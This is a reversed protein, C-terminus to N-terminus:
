HTVAVRPAHRLHVQGLLEEVLVDWEVLQEPSLIGALGQRFDLQIGAMAERQARSAGATSDHAFRLRMEDLRVANGDVLLRLERQQGPQLGLREQARMIWQPLSTAPPRPDAVADGACALLASVAAQCLASRFRKM